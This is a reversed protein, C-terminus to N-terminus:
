TRMMMSPQNVEQPKVCMSTGCLAHMDQMCHALALLCAPDLTTGDWLHAMPVEVHVAVAATTVGQLSLCDEMLCTCGSGLITSLLQVCKLMADQKSCPSEIHMICAHQWCIAMWLGGLM